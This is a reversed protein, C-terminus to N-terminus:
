GIYVEGGILVAGPLASLCYSAGRHHRGVHCLDACVRAADDAQAQQGEQENQVDNIVHVLGTLVALTAWAIMTASIM